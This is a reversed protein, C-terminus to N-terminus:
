YREVLKFKAVKANFFDHSFNTALVPDYAKCSFIDIYANGTNEAFHGTISSTEILQIFSYGSLKPDNGFNEIMPSGYRKMDICICIDIIYRQITNHDRILDLDCGQLDIACSLGWMGKKFKEEIKLPDLKTINIEDNSYRCTCACTYRFNTHCKCHCEKIREEM